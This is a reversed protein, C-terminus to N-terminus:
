KVQVLFEDYTSGNQDQNSLNTAASSVACWKGNSSLSGVYLYSDGDGVNGQADATLLRLTGTPVDYAYVDGTGNSDEPVLGDADSYFVVTKGNQSLAPLYSSAAVENGDADVSIRTTAGSRFDHIFDDYLGNTDGPVLNAARSYFAVVQGNNSVAPCYSDGGTAEGGNSAVSARRTTGTKRDFVFVDYVGNTDGAVLNTATSDYAVFRGNPSISADGSYDNGAIGAADRSVLTLAGTRLDALFIQYEGNTAAADLNSSNSQFVLYRGNGSLCAGFVYCGALSEAGGPAVSVRRTTGSKRDRLFVDDSTNTDSGDLNTASSQFAVYRGNASVCPYVSEDNGQTGASDESVRETAGSKRDRVFVDSAGNADNEGNVLNTADSYFAVYRGNPTVAGEYSGGDAGMNGPVRSVLEPAGPVAAAALTGLGALAAAAWGRWSRRIGTM